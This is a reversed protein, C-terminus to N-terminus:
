SNGNKARKNSEYLVRTARTSNKSGRKGNLAEYATKYTKGDAMWPKAYEKSGWIMLFGPVSIVSVGGAELANEMDITLREYPYKGGPSLYDRLYITTEM